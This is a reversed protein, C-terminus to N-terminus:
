QASGSGSGGGGRERWRARMQERRADMATSLEDISIVGDHNTDVAAPDDFGFRGAKNLEDPTVKGDGNKDLHDMMPRLRERREEPSIVGDHNTDLEAEREKRREDRRKQMEERAAPDNWDRPERAGEPLQPRPRSETPAQAAPKAQDSAPAPESKDKCAVVFLCACLLLRVGSM